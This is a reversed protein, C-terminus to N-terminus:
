KNKEIRANILIFIVFGLFLSYILNIVLGLFSFQHAVLCFLLDYLTILVVLFVATVLFNIEGFFKKILAKVLFVILVLVLTNFGFFLPSALDLILGGLSAVLFAEFDASNLILILALLLVLNPWLGFISFYPMLTIQIIAVFIIALIYIINRIQKNM